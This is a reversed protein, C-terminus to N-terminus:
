QRRFKNKLEEIERQKQMEEMYQKEDEQQKRQEELIKQFGEESLPECSILADNEVVISYLAKCKWCKYPGSYRVDALSMSGETECGPCTIKMIM